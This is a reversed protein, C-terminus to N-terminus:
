KELGTKTVIRLAVNAIVIIAAQLEADLWPTGTVAQILVALAALLNVILTKSHWWKKKM